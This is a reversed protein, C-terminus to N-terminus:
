EGVADNARDLIKDATALLNTVSSKDAVIVARKGNDIAHQLISEEGKSGGSLEIYAAGTLGQIELAAKTLATSACFISLMTELASFIV